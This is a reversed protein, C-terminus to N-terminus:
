GEYEGAVVADRAVGGLEEFDAHADDGAGDHEAHVEIVFLAVFWARESERCGEDEHEVEAHAEADFEEFFVM